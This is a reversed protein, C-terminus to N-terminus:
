ESYVGDLLRLAQSVQAYEEPSLPILREALSARTERRADEWVACGAASLRLEVRRRDGPSDVRLLLGKGALVDVLASTTPPTLGIHEALEALSCGPRRHLFGLARFQVVSLDGDRRGGQRHARMEARLSQMIRPILELIEDALDEASQDM